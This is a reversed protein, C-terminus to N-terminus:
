HKHPSVWQKNVWRGGDGGDPCSIEMYVQEFPGILELDNGEEAPASIIRVPRVFRSPSTFLYLGPYAGNMSLPIYGVELDVPISSTSSLKLRRLHTVAKEILDSPMYGAIRGDLLVSLLEPPGAQVLKPSAPTMGIAILVSLISIRM